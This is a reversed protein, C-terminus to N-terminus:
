SYVGHELRRLVNEVEHAGEDTDLLDIPKIGGLARNPRELWQSAIQSDEFVEISLAMIRAFRAIKQSEDIETM